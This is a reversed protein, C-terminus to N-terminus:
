AWRIMDKKIKATMLLTSLAGNWFTAQPATYQWIYSSLGGPFVTKAMPLAKSTNGCALSGLLLIGQM